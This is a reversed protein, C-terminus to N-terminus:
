YRRGVQRRGIKVHANLSPCSGKYPIRVIKAVIVANCLEPAIHGASGSTGSSYNLGGSRAEASAILEKVSHIPLMICLVLM